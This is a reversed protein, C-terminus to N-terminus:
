GEFLFVLQHKETWSCTLYPHDRLVLTSCLTCPSFSETLSLMSPHDGTPLPPDSGSLTQEMRETSM